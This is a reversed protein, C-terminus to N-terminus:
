ATKPSAAAAAASAMGPGVPSTHPIAEIRATAPSALSAPWPQPLGTEPM